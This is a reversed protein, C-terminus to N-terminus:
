ATAPMDDRGELVALYPLNRWLGAYDLGYGVVFVDPVVFGRFDLNAAHEHPRDKEVFVCVRLDSAGAAAVERMVEALTAGTDYIDDVILVNRDRVRGLQRSPVVPAQQPRDADGYTKVKLLIMELPMEFRRVLDALFLLCGDLLGIITVPAGSYHANIEDALRGVRQEIDEEALLVKGPSLKV